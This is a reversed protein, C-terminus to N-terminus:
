KVGTVVQRWGEREPMWIVDNSVPAEPRFWVSVHLVAGDAQKRHFEDLPGPHPLNRMEPDPEQIFLLFAPRPSAAAPLGVYNVYTARRRHEWAYDPTRGPVPTFPPILDAALREVSPWEGAPTRLLAAEEFGSLLERTVRQVEEPQRRFLVQWSTLAAAAEDDGRRVGILFYGAIAVAAIGRVVWLTEGSRQPPVVDVTRIDPSPAPEPM